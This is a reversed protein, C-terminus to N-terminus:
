EIPIIRCVYGGGPALEIDVSSKSTVENNEKIYDSGYRHANKGDKFILMKYKKNDDLFNLSIYFKRPEWDNMVALYWNEQYKRATIIYDSIKAQIIKTTDWQVPVPSLFEMVEQEKLYNSPNDCLMQLPSEYIVYMAMQHVRTGQSMPANFIGVFNGKAANKMAGPTYDMPGAVMRTFPLILDHEPTICNSWKSNELGKVGESTLVNPYKRYLGAPKYSGHFDVLLKHRAAEAAVKEYFNVMWQDDRQMFDVKIGKIGWKEFQEFAKDFQQELTKWVVWLIIGVNKSKAYSILEKMDIDPVVDFLDGLKYWGEDLIIYEIGFKAAFDIYYKYTKTNIGAKFDVNYINNANWWDWAVKGPKIWKTDDLINKESLLWVLQNSLLGEDNESIAFIRWPFKRLSNTNVIYNETSVVKEDRDSVLKTNQPYKPFVATFKLKDKKELWMGAYNQLSSETLLVNIKQSIMLVPLSCFRGSNMSDIKEFLYLRENHSFMSTEEPFYTFTNKPFSINLSENKILVEKNIKGIFRYAIGENYARLEFNFNKFSLILRNYKEKIVASKTKIVPHYEKEVYNTKSEIFEFNEFIANNNLEIIKVNSIDFINTDNYAVSLKISSDVIIQVRTKNNPSFIKFTQQSLTISTIINTITVVLFLRNLFRDSIFSFKKM